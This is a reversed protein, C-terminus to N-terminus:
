EGELVLRVTTKGDASVIVNGRTVKAGKVHTEVDQAAYGMLRQAGGIASADIDARIGMNRMYPVNGRVISLVCATNRAKREKDTKPISIDFNM